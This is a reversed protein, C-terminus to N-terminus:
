AEDIHRTLSIREVMKLFLLLVEYPDDVYKFVSDMLTEMKRVDEDSIGEFCEGPPDDPHFSENNAVLDALYDIADGYDEIKRDLNTKM